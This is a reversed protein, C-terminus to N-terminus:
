QVYYYTKRQAFLMVEYVSTNNLGYAPNDFIYRNIHYLHAIELNLSIHIAYIISNLRLLCSIYLLSEPVRSFM